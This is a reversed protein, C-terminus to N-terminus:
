IAFCILTHMIIAMDHLKGISRLDSGMWFWDSDFDSNIDNDDEFDLAFIAAFISFLLIVRCCLTHM